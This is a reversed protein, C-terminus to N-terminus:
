EDWKLMVDAVSQHVKETLFDAFEEDTLKEKQESFANWLKLFTEVGGADYIDGAASHWKCQFWGYNQPYQQGIEAYREEIDNLATFKYGEKGGAIVMQPFVTLAQLEGPENEAIYTHLLINCFLEGMWMRQVNLGAQFHYAHGLEHITLLDFFPQMTLTADEDVYTSKIKDALESPLQDIPPIFSDWFDNNESAIVLTKNGMYHAMGYVPFGTFKPWDVPNLILMTVEPEFNIIENYFNLVNDMRAAVIKAREDNGESFYVKTKYCDLAFLSDFDQALIKVSFLIFITFFLLSLKIFPNQNTM